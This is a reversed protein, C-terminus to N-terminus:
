EDKKVEEEDETIDVSKNILLDTVALGKVLFTPVNYGLEVLNELISRVENIMLSALTFWGFMLLFNLDMNLIDNGMAVMVDSIIFSVCIMIWYGVKKVIGKLGVKSNEVNSKKAKTWGTIWDFINFAFYAAFLYWYVGFIASLFTVISGLVVNYRDILKDM